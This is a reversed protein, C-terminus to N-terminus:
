QVANSRQTPESIDSLAQGSESVFINVRALDGIALIGVLRGQDVVPLRRVQHKAMINAAERADTSSPITVVREFMVQSVPTTPSKGEAVANIAIDRDTVVGVVQGADTVPTSGCDIRKM